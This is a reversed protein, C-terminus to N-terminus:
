FSITAEAMFGNFKGGNRIDTSPFDLYKQNVYEGKMLIVPTIFWGAGVQSRKVNIDNAMGALRGSVTNYRGSVYLQDGLFRYTLENAIQNVTRNTTESTGRGKAQEFNGFYEVPGFKVFPNVVMAHLGASPGSFPQIAGSWANATETSTSSEMMDYYRSGARDGSYLTQNASKSQSYLSGTLRVRLLDTLQEDAGIKGLFAPARKTPNLITGRVEGNTVGGMLMVGKARLMVEGGVQTTFADMIYNGVLPNFMANGNDTRRFHTDGYNIEFHGAKVTTFAMLVKLPTWEIPSDDILLYGDKIWTENHHRASLYGTMAVRIGKALQANLYANAVANNFGHGVNILANANYMKGTAADTKLVPTATNAHALGQFQQTFGAGFGVKFGTFPVDTEKPAEFVNIGRQDNPRIHQFEIPPLLLAKASAAAAAATSDKPKATTTSDTASAKVTVTSAVQTTDPTQQAFTPTAFVATAVVAIVSTLPRM